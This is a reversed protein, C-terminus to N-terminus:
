FLAAPRYLSQEDLAQVDTIGLMALNRHIEEHLLDIARRVGAEGAVAAAYNFPRGVFVFDAGLAMAKLVDSGRRIGSDMMVPIDPCARVIAPLAELATVAGDLQRGGHNSVILGDVGLRVAHRADEASLVGKLILQGPWLNRVREFYKWNLHSRDSFDRLVHRSLVPAGRTAYNNEFHPMGHRVLTRLFVGVSWRPHLLGELLLRPTPRLPATFGARINNERNAAVPTDATIVLTEFGARRVREILDQIQTWEGPLYAQFWINPGLPALEEMPILSSGSMIMPINAQVAARAQVLDGRYATLASLGMPAIGFPAAYSQGLLEVSTQVVSVDRMVRPVFAHRQFVARNQMLSSNTEVGGSVYAFLPRPLTRRAAKEFDDLNLFQNVRRKKFWM